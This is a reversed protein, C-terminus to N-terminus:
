TLYMFFAREENRTSYRSEFQIFAVRPRHEWTVFDTVLRGRSLCGFVQVIKRGLNVLPFDAYAVIVCERINDGWKKCEKRAFDQHENEVLHAIWDAYNGCEKKCVTCKLSLAFSSTLGEMKAYTSKILKM